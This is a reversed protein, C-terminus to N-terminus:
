NLTRTEYSGHWVIQGTLLSTLKFECYFYTTKGKNMNYFTGYLAYQPKTRTDGPTAVGPTGGLEQNQFGELTAKNEVFALRDRTPADNLLGALRAVYIDFNTTPNDTKNQVGMVVIVARYPNAAIEPAQLMDPAMKDTMERLDRSQLGTDGKVVKDMDPRMDSREQDEGGCGVFGGCALVVVLGLIATRKGIGMFEEPTKTLFLSM